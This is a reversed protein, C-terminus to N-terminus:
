EHVHLLQLLLFHLEEEQSPTATSMVVILVIAIDSEATKPPFMASFTALFIAMAAKFFFM